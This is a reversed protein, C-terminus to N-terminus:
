AQVKKKKSKKKGKRWWIIFGTIPLSAGILSVLSWIIKGTLGFFVGTHM